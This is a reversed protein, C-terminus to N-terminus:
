RPKPRHARGSSAAVPVSEVGHEQAYSCESAMPCSSCRPGEEHCHELAILSLNDTAQPGKAKPVLHELSARAAELDEVGGDILGLRRVCRLTASDLPLAHGGLSRQVVWSAVYDNSAQYRSLGKAANKLGKKGLDELEFSFEKEFVEQLFSIIRQGRLEAQPMGEFAEELERVSSVRIENWDFFKERLYRYAQDAQEPTANERCIGYVFQELVPREEPKSEAAKRWASLLQSVLRQKVVTTPM